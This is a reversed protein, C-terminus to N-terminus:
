YTGIPFNELRGNAIEEKIGLVIGKCLLLREIANPVFSM